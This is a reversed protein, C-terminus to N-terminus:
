KDDTEIEQKECVSNWTQCPQTLFIRINEFDTRMKLNDIAQEASEKETFVGFVTPGSGSMIANVAGSEKLAKCLDKVIPFRSEIGKQFANQMCEALEKLNGGQLATLQKDLEPHAQLDEKQLNGYALATSVDVPPKAVVIFCDPMQNLITLKEGIGEALATGGLICYPVDAGIKVAREMLEEKSLGLHFLDNVAIMTVAADTSGGAMGAAAPIVKELVVDLGEKLDFEEMLLEAAKWILNRHDTPIGEADTHIRITKEPIKEFTLTDSLSITQMIMRVDHYGDERKRLVDLGLNIKALAKMQM